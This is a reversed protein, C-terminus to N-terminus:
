KLQRAEIIQRRDLHTVFHRLEGGSDLVVCLRSPRRWGAETGNCLAQRPKGVHREIGDVTDHPAGRRQLMGGVRHRGGDMEGGFERCAEVQAIALLYCHPLAARREAQPHIGAPTTPLTPRPALPAETSIVLVYSRCIISVSSTFMPAIGSTTRMTALIRSMTMGMMSDTAYRVSAAHATTGNSSPMTSASM